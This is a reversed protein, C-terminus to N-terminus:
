PTDGEPQPLDAMREEFAVQFMAAFEGGERQCVGVLETVLAAAADPGLLYLVKARDTTKNIRGELLLALAKDWAGGRGVAVLAVEQREMLVANRMDVVVANQDFPGGPGAIDGGLGRPDDSDSQRM